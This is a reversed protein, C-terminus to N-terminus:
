KYVLMSSNRTQKRTANSDHIFCVWSEMEIFNTDSEMEMATAIKDMTIKRSCKNSNAEVLRSASLVYKLSRVVGFVVVSGGCDGRAVLM